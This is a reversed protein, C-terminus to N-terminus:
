YGRTRAERLYEEVVLRSQSPPIAHLDILPGTGIIVPSDFPDEDPGLPQDDPDAGAEIQRTTRDSRLLSRWWKTLM